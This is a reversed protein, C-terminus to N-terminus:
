NDHDHDYFSSLNVFQCDRLFTAHVQSQFNAAAKEGRCSVVSLEEIEKCRLCEQLISGDM